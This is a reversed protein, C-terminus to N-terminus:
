VWAPSLKVLAQSGTSRSFPWDQSFRRVHRGRAYPALNSLM